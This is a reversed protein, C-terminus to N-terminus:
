EEELGNDYKQRFFNTAEEVDNANAIVFECIKLYKKPDVFTLLRAIYGIAQYEFAFAGHPFDSIKKIVDIDAYGLLINFIEDHDSLSLIEKIAEIVVHNLDHCKHCLIQLQDNDYEWPKRGKFYQKHHVHLQNEKSGCNECEWGAIELRELRKRQWEPRQLLNLYENSM